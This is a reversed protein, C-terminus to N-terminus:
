CCAFITALAARLSITSLRTPLLAPFVERHRDLYSDVYAADVAYLRPLDIAKTEMTSGSITVAETELPNITVTKPSVTRVAELAEEVSNKGNNNCIFSDRM